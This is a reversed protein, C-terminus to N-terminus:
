QGSTRTTQVKRDTGSKLVKGLRSKIPNFFTRATLQPLIWTVFKLCWTRGFSQFLEVFTRCQARGFGQLLKVRLEVLARSFARGFAKCCRQGGLTSAVCYISCTTRLPTWPPRGRSARSLARGLARYPAGFSQQCVASIYQSPEAVPRIVVWVFVRVFVRVVDICVDMCVDM